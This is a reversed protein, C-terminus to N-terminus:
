IDYNEVWLFFDVVLPIGSFRRIYQSRSRPMGSSGDILSKHIAILFLFKIWFNPTTVIQSEKLIQHTLMFLM